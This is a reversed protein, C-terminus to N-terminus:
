NLLAKNSIQNGRPNPGNSGAAMGRGDGDPGFGSFFMDERRSVIFTHLELIGRM